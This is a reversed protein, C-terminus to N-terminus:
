KTLKLDKSISICLIIGKKSGLKTWVKGKHQHAIEQAIALGLGTGKIGISTVSREFPRFLNKSDKEAIGIGDDKVSLIHFEDSEEYGINIKSLEGGGYKLANDVFNRMVRLISLRDVKIELLNEPQSWSIRRVLIQASFEDRVTDFVQNLNVREIVLPSEKTSIYINIREVLTALDESAKMIQDCYNKGKEDLIDKYNENLYKTLLYIGIAPNKIDHSVSYAFLKIKEASEKIAEEAQKRGTIDTHVGILGIIEGKDDKIADARLDVPFKRGSKSLMEIEGSWSKGNMINEFVDRAVDPDAYVAPGGGAAELEEATYEFLDTFATNQYFHHGQPDSMSIADSASDVAKTRRRLAEEAKKRDTIDRNSARFGLPRGEQDKVPTCAHEIWCIQGDRKMIRFQIERSKLINSSDHRHKDWSERDGPVVIERLLAPNDIFEQAQYGTIREVSPSIYRLTGGLGVWYEWDYTFDAVTRYSLEAERLAEEAQKLETIDIGM